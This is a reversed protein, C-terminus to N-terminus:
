NHPYLSIYYVSLTVRQNVPYTPDALVARTFSTTSAPAPVSLILGPQIGTITTNTIVANVFNTVDYVYATNLPHFYDLNLSGTQLSGTGVGPIPPGILNNQDTSFLGIAPPLRWTTNFSGPVPRITLQARLVGLYDPRHAIANLSPFTLKVDLGGITQLYSANATSTSPTAPPPQGYQTPKALNALATGTWDTTVNNFQFSKNTLQFDIFKQTSVVSNERYYIRMVASDQFGYIAGQSTPGPSICLGNFWALWKDQRVITDSRNYIMNFLQQGLDQKLRIIVTDAAGQSTYPINPAISVSTQGLPNPDIPLRSNSFFGRQLSGLQYSSDVQNVVFTQTLTSDGYYPNSKKFLLILAISDYTDFLTITPPADPAAVQLFARSSVKGLYSDKYNGVMLFGTGATATSDVYVTSMVATTTDVVVIDASGNDAVYTPGFNLNPQKQCGALLFLALISSLLSLWERKLYNHMITMSTKKNPSFDL